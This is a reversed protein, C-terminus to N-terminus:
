RSRAARARATLEALLRRAEDSDRHWAIAGPLRRGATDCHVSALRLRRQLPGQRLRLSQVKALPVVDMTTTVFGFTTVVHRDDLGVRLRRFWLPSRLRARPPPPVAPQPLSGSLVRAVLAVALEKPAVPLLASTSMQEEGGGAAYGAVDVEVRVWGFPRWLLPERVRVVQVRGAPITASRTELLGHRIKLGDVSESVRFGYETLVRRVVTTVVGFAVPLVTFAVVGFARPDVAATVVVAVLLFGTTWVPAGLLNSWLLPGPPVAVLLLEPPAAATPGGAPVAAGRRGASLELLRMRLALADAESLYSLPAETQGGGAVELRLEALGLIRAFLPRVVDVSQLRALPVRRQRKTLVGSDVQLETDTLRYRMARWTVYAFAAVLPVAVAIVGLGLLASEARLGQQGLVVVLVLGFRGGRLLPTLPHLRHWGDADAPPAAPVRAAPPPGASM